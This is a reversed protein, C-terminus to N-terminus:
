MVRMDRDGMAGAKAIPIELDIKGAKAFELTLPFTQGEKLTLKLGVMMIHVGGPKFILTDGPGIDVVALERMRMVGNDDTEQHFQVKEAAPTSAGILRDSIAGRNIITVYAAGTVAGVPTARAWPHEVVISNVVLNQAHVRAGISLLMTLALMLLVKYKVSQSGWIGFGHQQRHRDM